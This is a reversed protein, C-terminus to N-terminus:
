SIMWEVLLGPVILILPCLLLILLRLRLRLLTGTIKFASTGRHHIILMVPEGACRRLLGVESTSYECFKTSINFCSVVNPSSLRTM